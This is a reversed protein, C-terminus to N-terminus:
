IELDRHIQQMWDPVAPNEAGHYNLVYPKIDIIPSGDLAEFGLVRLINDQRDLLRVASVLVPNPRAPSCTAFIGQLPLDERGMPHVQKLSRRAPDILHPWYLVLIHSFDETGKLLDLYEPDIVLESIMERIGKHYERMKEVRLKLELGREGARLIPEKIENRVFGVPRLIMEPWQQANAIM